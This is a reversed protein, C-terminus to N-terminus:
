AAIVKSETSGVENESPPVSVTAKKRKGPRLDSFYSYKSGSKWWKGQFLLAPPQGDLDKYQRVIAGKELLEPDFIRVSAMKEGAFRRRTTACWLRDLDVQSLGHRWRLQKKIDKPILGVKEQVRLRKWAKTLM